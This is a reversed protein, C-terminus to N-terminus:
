PRRLIDLEERAQRRVSGPQAWGNLQVFIQIATEIVAPSSFRCLMGTASAVALMVQEDRAIEPTFVAEYFTKMASGDSDRGINGIAMAAAAKVVSDSERRFVTTLWPIMESSCFRAALWLAQAREPVLVPPRAVSVGPRNYGASVIEMIYATWECENEGVAGSDIGRRIIDFRQRIESDDYRFTPDVWSPPPPPPVAIGYSNEPGTGYPSQTQNRSRDELKWAYFIWDVGGSFLVGDDSLAPIGGANRLNTFWLRRGDDSFGTAGSKSFVYIGREDFIMAADDSGGGPMRIHSDGTWLIEGDDGSMLIVKGNNLTIAAQNGMSAAALPPAPLRPLPQPPKDPEDPDLLEIAGDAYIAMIQGISFLVRPLSRPKWSLVGGFPDLRLVEGNELALVIGGQQDLRPGLSIRGDFTRSWLLTGSATYCSINRETPVFIRGDWGCVAQASLPGGINRRWLEKGNRSLAFFIGNMRSFYSIGEPSRSVFPSVKGPTSYSWMPIGSSTYAKVVGSDLAVVVSPGQVAPQGIVIGGLAQRWFADGMTVGSQAYLGFPLLLMVALLIRKM